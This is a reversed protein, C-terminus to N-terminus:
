QEVAGSGIGGEITVTDGEVTYTAQMTRSVMSVIHRLGEQELFAGTVQQQRLGPNTIIVEVDFRKGIITAAEEMTVNNLVLFEDKWKLEQEAQISTKKVENTRTNVALQEDPLIEDLVQENNGVAVKGRTVTVVVEPQGDYAKINFVTGLVTTKVGNSRVIFPRSRDHKIDFYGEGNLTVERVERGFAGSYSLESNENLLVTSGDPLQIHQKGSFSASAVTEEQQIFQNFQAPFFFWMTAVILVVAAAAYRTIRGLHAGIGRRKGLKAITQQKLAQYERASLMSAQDTVHYLSEVKAFVEEDFAESDMWEEVKEKIDASATGALYAWIESEKM